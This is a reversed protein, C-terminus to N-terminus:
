QVVEPKPLDARCQELQMEYIKARAEVKRALRFAWPNKWSFSKSKFAGIGQNYALYLNYADTPQIGAHLKAQNAYWGIFDTADAFEDRSKEAGISKEYCDWTHIVAQCYGLSTSQRQWPIIRYLKKSPPSEATAQFTSEQYIIAMQIPIPVGWKQETKQADLFWSPYQKFIDCINQTDEPQPAFCGSILAFSSALAGVTLLKWNM